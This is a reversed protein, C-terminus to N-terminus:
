DEVLLFSDVLAGASQLAQTWFLKNELDGPRFLSDYKLRDDGPLVREACRVAFERLQRANSLRPNLAVYYLGLKEVERVEHGMQKGAQRFQSLVVLLRDGVGLPPISYENDTPVRSLIDSGKPRSAMTSKMEELSSGSSGALVFALRAGETAAADLFPMLAEYPWSVGPNADVEDVFCLSPGQVVRLEALGSRFGAEDLKALNLERYHVSDGLLAAVEQVFYTKGSGPPAWIIYNERKPSSRQCAAVIKQRADKLTNRVGEGYRVYNGVIRYHSLTVVNLGALLSRAEVAEHTDAPAAKDALATPEAGVTIRMPEPEHSKYKGSEDLYLIRPKLVFQGRHTPKLFLKIGETKLPDLRKGRLNLYGDEMRYGKPEERLTFGKPVPDQLKILQAPGRGANVLEIEISLEEDVNLEKKPAVLNAQIDAHEFRELGVPQEYTHTPGVFSDTSSVALPAHFLETLSVALEREPKVSKLLRLVQDKKGPQEAREFGAASAELIKEVALYAKAKKEHDTEQGARDVAAYADFLLKSARSYESASEAGARAYHSAASDLHKIASAHLAPDRTDAFRTGAELAKCFRSHGLALSKAKENPSLDKAREFLRSAEGYLEASSEAEAQNMKQWARALVAILGIENRDQAAPMAGLINELLEAAKGYGESSSTSENKIALQKAEELMTRAQCYKSRTSAADVLKSIMDREDEAIARKGAEKLALLSTEFLHKAKEFCRASETCRDARSLVEADEVCAWAEYNSALFRWRKSSDHLKSARSWHGGATEYEQRDHHHRAKEIETWADMYIAYDSYVESLQTIKKGAERFMMSAQGFSESAGVHDGLTDRVQAAKWHSEAMRSPWGAKENWLVSDEFAKAAEILIARENAYRNLEVLRNGLISYHAGIYQCRTPDGHQFPSKEALNLGEKLQAAAERLMASRAANDSTLLALEHKHDALEAMEAGLLFLASPNLQTLIKTSETKHEVAQEILRKRTSPDAETSATTALGKGVHYHAWGVIEPYGSREARELADCTLRVCREALDRKADQDIEFEYRIVCPAYDPIESWSLYWWDPSIFSVVAFQDFAQRSAKALTELFGDRVDPNETGYAFWSTIASIFDLACGILFRDNTKKCFELARQALQIENGHWGPRSANAFLQYLTSAIFADEESLQVGKTWFERSSDSYRDFRDLKVFNAYFSLCASTNSYLVALERNNINNSSEKVGHEGFEMAQRAIRERGEFDTEYATALAAAVVLRNYTKAFEIRHEPRMTQSLSDVALKWSSRASEKKQSAEIHLWYEAYQIMAGCRSLLWSVESNEAFSLLDKAKQFEPVVRKMRDKFEESSASQFAEKLMAYALEEQMRGRKIVDKEPVSNLIERFHSAAESWRYERELELARDHLPEVSSSERAM